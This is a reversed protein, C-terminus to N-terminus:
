NLSPNKARGKQAILFIAGGILNALVILGILKTTFLWRDDVPIIPFVSLVVYLLTMLFGSLAAVRLWLPARPRVHKLGAMPIAFMVLYTLAYFIGSGNNLLQYAEQEGVGTIGALGLLLTIAGVFVISNAPTKYKPSLRTFWEPLLRDWGAVLPLRATASLNISVQAVRLGLVSLIAIPIVRFVIGLSAAGASLVQSIPAILDVDDPRIFAQVASTGLIFMLAIAPAAIMVSRGITRAPNRCEGAFIAVYEFGGLAAFGLKGLINLNLLTFAPMAMPFPEFKAITGRAVSIVPLAVLAAFIAIMVFGGANHLWKGVGLGLVSVVGLAGILVCSAITMFWKSGALWLFRPGLAYAINSAAQVGLDSMLVVAYTWLNWAVMFGAFDNFGLKTWQYLGGELPMLGNLYIVVVASPLYFLFVALLWFVVHSSGLKAATGIWGLGIIFLIQTFALDMLGLEKRFVGSHENVSAEANIFDPQIEIDPM